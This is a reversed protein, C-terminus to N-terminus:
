LRCVSMRRPVCWKLNPVHSELLLRRAASSHQQAFWVLSECGLVGMGRFDTAAEAGQFGLEPWETPDGRRRTDPKLAVWLKELLAADAPSEPAFPRRRGTTDQVSARFAQFTTLHSLSWDLRARCRYVRPGHFVFVRHCNFPRIAGGGGWQFCVRPLAYQESVNHWRKVALIRAALTAVPPPASASGGQDAGGAFM